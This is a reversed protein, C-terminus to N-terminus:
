GEFDVLIEIQDTFKSLITKLKADAKAAKRLQDVERMTLKIPRTPSSVVPYAWPWYAYPYYYTCGSGNTTTLTTTVSDNLWDNSVAYVNSEM